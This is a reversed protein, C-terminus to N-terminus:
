VKISIRLKEQADGENIENEENGNTDKKEYEIRFVRVTIVDRGQFQSSRMYGDIFVRDGPSLNKYTGEADRGLVEVPIVNKRECM